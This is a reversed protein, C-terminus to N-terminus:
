TYLYRIYIMFLFIYFVLKRNANNQLYKFYFFVGSFFWGYSVKGCLALFM